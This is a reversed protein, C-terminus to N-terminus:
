EENDCLEKKETAARVLHYSFLIIFPVIQAAFWPACIEFATKVEEETEPTPLNWGPSSLRIAFFLVLYTFAFAVGVIIAKDYQTRVPVYTSGFSYSVTIFVALLIVPPVLSVYQVFWATHEMKGEEELKTLVEPIFKQYLALMAGMLICAAICLIIVKSIQAMRDKERIKKEMKNKWEEYKSTFVRISTM